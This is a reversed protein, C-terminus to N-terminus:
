TRLAGLHVQVDPGLPGWLLPQTPEPLSQRQQGVVWGEVTELTQAELKHLMQLLVIAPKTEENKKTKNKLCSAVQFIVVYISRQHGCNIDLFFHFAIM